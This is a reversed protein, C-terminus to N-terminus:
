IDAKGKLFNLVEDLTRKSKFYAETIKKIDEKKMFGRRAQSYHIILSKRYDKYIIKHNLSTFYNIHM